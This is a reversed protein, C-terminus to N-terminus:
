CSFPINDVTIVGTATIAIDLCKSVSNSKLRITTETAGAALPYFDVTPDGSIKSVSSNFNYFQINSGCFSINKTNIDRCCQKFNYNAGNIEVRYGGFEDSGSCVANIESVHAKGRALSLVDVLVSAEKELIKQQTFNSYTVISYGSFLVIITVVVLIEILTFSRKKITSHQNNIVKM